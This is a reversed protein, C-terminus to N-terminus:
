FPIYGENLRSIVMSGSLPYRWNFIYHCLQESARSINTPNFVRSGWNYNQCFLHGYRDSHQDHPFHTWFLSCIKLFINLARKHWESPSPAMIKNYMKTMSISASITDCRFLEPSALFPSIWLKKMSSRPWALPHNIQYSISLTIFLHGSSTNILLVGQWGSLLCNGLLSFERMILIVEYFCQFSYSISRLLVLSNM